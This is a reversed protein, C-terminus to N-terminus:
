VGSLITGEWPSRPGGDLAHNTAGVYTLVEFWHVLSLLVCPQSWRVNLLGKDLVICTLHYSFFLFCASFWERDKCQWITLCRKPLKGWISWVVADITFTYLCLQRTTLDGSLCSGLSHQPLFQRSFTIKCNHSDPKSTTFNSDPSFRLKSYKFTM